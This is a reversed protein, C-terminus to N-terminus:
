VQYLIGLRKSGDGTPVTITNNALSTMSKTFTPANVVGTGFCVLLIDGDEAIYDPLGIIEDFGIVCTDPGTGGQAWGSHVLSTVQKFAKAGVSKGNDVPVIEETIVKGEIDIGTVTVVGMTDATDVRTTTISVNHALGDGPLGNNALTYTGNAMAGSVKYRNAVITAPICRYFRLVKQLQKRLGGRIGRTIWLDGVSFVERRAM